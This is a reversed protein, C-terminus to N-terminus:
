KADQQVWEPTGSLIGRLRTLPEGVKIGYRTIEMERLTKEFDGHRKKLVGIAKRLQGEIELYRLFIVNDALYSIGFETIQFEGTVKTIEHILIVSIGMNSLHKCLSHIHTLLATEEGRIALRYGSTSDIMVLRADHEAVDSAVLAAFENPGYNLPEIARVTLMGKDIMAPIPINISESRRALMEISEEFTYLLSYEGRGAAEKIFATGLTTKGTGSPGTILTVTGAGLGGHLLEDIEPVGSSILTDPFARPTAKPTLQPYVVIGTSTIEFTHEGHEFDSGRYKTLTITRGIPAYDLHIVGDALFQLDEDPAEPSSESTFLVTAGNELLFRLFSQTQKRFQFADTALYRFQTMSDVFVRTPQIEQITEVIQQTVPEREVEAPSFIDYSEVKAFFESSPSLDLFHINTLDFGLAQANRRLNIEPEGLTIMLSTEGESIGALLFHLGFTTKGTGPGGRILYANKSLFGGHLITDLGPVGSRLRKNQM